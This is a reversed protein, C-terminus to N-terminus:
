AKREKLVALWPEPGLYRRAGAAPVTDLLTTLPRTIDPVVLVQRARLKPDKLQEYANRVKEFMDPERDPPYQRVKALYAQHLAAPDADQAVGLTAQAEEWSVAPENREYM